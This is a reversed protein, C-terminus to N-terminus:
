PYGSLITEFYDEVFRLREINNIDNIEAVVSNIKEINKGFNKKLCFTDIFIKGTKVTLIIKPDIDLLKAKLTLALEADKLCNISYTMPQFRKSKITNVIIDVAKAAGIQDLNIVLDYFNPNTIDAKFIYESWRSYESDNKIISKYAAKASISEKEMMTQIRTELNAIIRVKFVHSIGRALVFGGHGYYAINDKLLKRILLLQLYVIYKDKDPHVRDASIPAKYIAKEILTKSVNFEKATMDIIENGILEYNLEKAASNIIQGSECYSETTLTIISM